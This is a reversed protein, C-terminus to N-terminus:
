SRTLWRRFRDEDGVERKRRGSKSIGSVLKQMRADAERLEADIDSLWSHLQRCRQRLM